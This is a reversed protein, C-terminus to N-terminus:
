AAPDAVLADAHVRTWGSEPDPAGPSVTIDLHVRNKATKREPVRQFLMRPGEGAPDVMASLDNWRERPMAIHAAFQEWSTFGEPPPQVVYDLAFAWFEAQAAPDGADVTVQMARAM